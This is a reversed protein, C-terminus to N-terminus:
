GKRAPSATVGIISNQNFEDPLILCNAILM